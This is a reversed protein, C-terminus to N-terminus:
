TRVLKLVSHKFGAPIIRKIQRIIKKRYPLKAYAAAQRAKNLNEESLLFENRLNVYYCTLRKYQDYGKAELEKKYDSFLKTLDPRQGVSFRTYDRHLKQKDPDFGSFHFFVLQYKGNVFYTSNKEELLREHLNWPAMNYSIHRLVKIKEFYIPALNIWLQDTFLGIAPKNYGLAYTREKWWDLFQISQANKKIAIFGLNYIGYNLFLSEAPTHNDLPIPTVIHPTLIIDHEVFCEDIEDMPAYLCVDPDLYIAQQVHLKDFFYHFYAPKVCTNLEIISFKKALEDIGPEVIAAELIGCGLAEYNVAENKKDVLGIYFKWDSQYQHVSKALVLAQALYNNSCLTFIIKGTGM